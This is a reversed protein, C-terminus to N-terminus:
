KQVVRFQYTSVAEFSGSATMGSLKLVYDGRPLLESPVMLVVEEVGNERKIRPTTQSSIEEGNDKQLVGRYTKYDGPVQGLEVRVWNAGTPIVVKKMGDMGRLVGPILALAVMSSTSRAAPSTKLAALEQKLEADQSQQEQLERALQDNRERLQALQRQAEPQAATPVSPEKRAQELAQQLLQTRISLWSGGLVLLLLATAMSWGKILYPARLFDFFSLWARATRPREANASVYRQLSRSFRLKERREPTCLFHDNFKEQERPSLTGQLYEDVLEDEAILLQEFYEDNTMLRQELEQQESETLEGLLYQKMSIENGVDETM